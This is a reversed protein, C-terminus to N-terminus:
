SADGQVLALFAEWHRPHPVRTGARFRSCAALSLGTAKAIEGLSFADLKPTVERLFWARDRPEPHEKAWQRNRRHHSATAEGRQANAQTSARPDPGERAQAALAGRATAIAREARARCARPLCAECYRRRRKLVPEGCSACAAPILALPEPRPAGWAKSAYPRAEPRKRPTATLTSQASTPHAAVAIGRVSLRASKLTRPAVATNARDRLAQRFAEALHAVIPAVLLRWRPLTLALDHTLPARVRCVGNPLEVFERSTFVHAELLDLVFADVDPRIPEMADLAFSDRNRQDAHLVGLTPDCGAALLALRSEAELLSYLYNLLANVPNTAARPAGTLISARSDYRAWRAPLRALDRGRVNLPVNTWANWYIAAAKAECLRVEDVTGARDLAECLGDFSHLDRMGLRVLNVRQGDLKKRILERALTLDLGTTIALAQARRIPQGDYGFPVSHALLAGDPGIHVLAAGIARLWALTELTLSGTKGLLVLRELGSGARDLVLSRRRDAIGDEVHLKGYLIRLSIGYGDAVLMGARVQLPPFPFTSDSQQM